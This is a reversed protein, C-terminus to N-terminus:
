RFDRCLEGPFEFEITTHALQYEQLRSAIDQKLAVQEELSLCDRLLLHATLVHHEGDLSWFHLHHVEKVQAIEELKELIEERLEADPVAQLFVKATSFLLKAVNFLIFATFAISLIPDLIPWHVFHLVVAVILIAVWGLVDELLHWNLTKENLSSGKSLRWAAYGNVAIGLIALGLMGTPHPMVPDALRAIAETLVWISGIVLIVSNLLAGLLSFRRYGYTFRHDATRNSFKQLCWALGIALSDGLDHIADALIATSNFLLGGVFEILSFSLNLFFAWAINRSSAVGDHSHDHHSHSHGHHLHGHGHHLHSHGHHLHSHGHHHHSM